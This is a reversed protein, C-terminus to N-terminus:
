PKRLDYCFIRNRGRLIFRGDVYPLAQPADYASTQVHPQNWAGVPKLDKLTYVQMATSCHCGDPQVFVRGDGVEVVGIFTGIIDARGLIKGGALEVCLVKAKVAGSGPGSYRVYALGDRAASSHMSFLSYDADDTLEWLKKPGSKELLYCVTVHPKDKPKLSTLLHSGLLRLYMSGRPEVDVPSAWVVAGTKPEACTLGKPGAWV